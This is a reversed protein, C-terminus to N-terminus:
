KSIRVNAFHALTGPGIWLAVAGSTQGQRLNDVILTPQEVGNVFLRAQKGHVDIKVKTWEGAILDVYTEYKEPFDKRLLQWPFGPISIYQVSHNRRVQDEARGNTPRLYICEFRSADAAVRFAIGVFGRAGEGAGPRPEGALDVEIIGDEFGTKPLLVLRAEDGTGAPAADDVRLAKRGKFTVIETKVNVPKLQDMLDPSSNQGANAINTPANALSTNAKLRLAMLREVIALVEQIDAFTTTPDNNYDMLRHSYNRQATLDDIVFRTEQLAAGRHEFKGNVEVSANALACYLSFTRASKPCERNDARNWKSPSDLIKRARRVIELDAATVPPRADSDDAAQNQAAQPRDKIVEMAEVLVRSLPKGLSRGVSTNVQVAVAVKHDSFYMVDTMYGPFFGSHGYSTGVTTKRIIVGLGYTTERGLMPASVGDLVQPLLDPAFAKGEYISKAWRALDHATSAYGGGTWEFQPNIAFKGNVIMADTGGFPNDPGAYGQVVGKLRPGDQPITDTLKLPKLLRRNAEDYFKRGTVKEIIMGLVIYNTDSYDWGKGAEFPPKEDLLYAVLEAPKWVKEPSATLDKTFQEKFEYRVLGSSHNLLQRVTIEKVNPLRAFWQEHGLYKQIKDDLGIKGEKILQLATAAAFTKGVSGALMRDTAKMPTKTERDSFGVALGFSEGNALVVGLTAGPFSGTKHWEDLKLQLVSELATKNAVGTQAHVVVSLFLCVVFFIVTRRM